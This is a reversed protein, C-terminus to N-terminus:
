VLEAEPSRVDLSYRMKLCAAVAGLRKEVNEGALDRLDDPLELSVEGGIRRLSCRHLLGAAGGSLTHGVRIVAGVLRAHAEDAATLRLGGSVVPLAHNSYRCYVCAALYLRDYHSIGSANMFLVERFGIEARQDPHTSWEIGSLKCAAQRFLRKYDAQDEGLSEFFRDTWLEIEELNNGTRSRTSSIREINISLPYASKEAKSLTEYMVGERVGFASIMVERARSRQILQKIAIASFPLSEVRKSPIDISEIMEKPKMQILYDALEVVEEARMSYQHLVHLEYNRRKMHLRAITRWAGGVAYIRDDPIRDLWDVSKCERRAIEEATQLDGGSVDKLTLAGIGLTHTKKLVGKKLISIELSGGGLDAVLGTANLIGCKVGAAALRAEDEGSLILIPCNLQASAADIFEQGNKAGRVAATAFALLRSVSHYDALIKFRALEALTREIGEEDLRGSSVVARGLGCMVKENCISIPSRSAEEFVVLRVSNSGIDVVGISNTRASKLSVPM